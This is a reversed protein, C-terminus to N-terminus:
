GRPHGGEGQNGGDLRQRCLTKALHLPEPMRHERMCSRVIDSSAEGDIGWGRSVYITARHRAPSFALCSSGNGKETAYLPRRTVGITPTSLLYGIHRAMGIGRPHDIGSAPVLLVDPKTRLTDLAKMLVPGERYALYTPEYDMDTEMQAWSSALLRLDGADLCVVTSALIGGPLPLQSCGGLTRISAVEVHCEGVESRRAM